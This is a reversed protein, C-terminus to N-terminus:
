LPNYRRSFLRAFADYSPYRAICPQHIGCPDETWDTSISFQKEVSPNALKALNKELHWRFFSDENGLFREGGFPTQVIRAGGRALIWMRFVNRLSFGGTAGVYDYDIFDDVNDKLLATDVQFILVHHCNCQILRQWLDPSCLTENYQSVTMTTNLEPIYHVNPWGALGERLMSENASSHFIILGWGKKQLLFVFNKIVLILRPHCRPEIIVCKKTTEELSPIAQFYEAPLDFQSQYEIWEPTDM